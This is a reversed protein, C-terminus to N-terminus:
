QCGEDKNRKADEPETEVDYEPLVTLERFSLYLVVSLHSLSADLTSLLLLYLKPALFTGVAFGLAAISSTRGAARATM